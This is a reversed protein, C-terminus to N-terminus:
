LLGRQCDGILTRLKVRAANREEAPWYPQAAEALFGIHETAYGKSEAYDLFEILSDNDDLFALLQEDTVQWLKNIRERETIQKAM